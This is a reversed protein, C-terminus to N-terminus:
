IRDDEDVVGVGIQEGYRGTLSFYVVVWRHSIVVEARDLLLVPYVESLSPPSCIPKKSHM